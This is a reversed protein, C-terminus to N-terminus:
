PQFGGLLVELGTAPVDHGAASPDAGAIGKRTGQDTLPGATFVVLGDIEQGLGSVVACPRM